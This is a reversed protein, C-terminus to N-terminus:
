GGPDDSDRALENAKPLSGLFNRSATDVGGTDKNSRNPADIPDNLASLDPLANKANKVAKGVDPLGAKGVQSVDDQQL